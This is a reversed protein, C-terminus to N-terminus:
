RATATEVLAQILQDGLSERIELAIAYPLFETAANQPYEAASLRQMRDEEVRKLFTRFGEIEVVAQRGRSTRRKLAPAWGLNVFVMAALTLPYTPSVLTALNRFLIVFVPGLVALAVLATLTQRTGGLGRLARRWSPILKTLVVAGVMYACFFFWWTLFGIGTRDKGEVTLAMSMATALSMLLGAVLYGANRTFIVRDLRHHFEEVIALLCRNSVIGEGPQMIIEPGDEFLIDLVRIEEPALNTQVNTGARSLKYKGNQSKIELCGRAALQAIVAALARGDCAARSIYRVAAPSLGQPPEYLVQVSALKPEPGIRLWVVTYYVFIAVPAALLWAHHAFIDM